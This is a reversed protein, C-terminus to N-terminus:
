TTLAPDPRALAFVVDGVWGVPVEPDALEAAAGLIRGSPRAAGLRHSIYSLHLSRPVREWDILRYGAKALMAALTQPTFYWLHSRMLWPWEAGRARAHVSALNVTTLAVLGGDALHTRVTRLTGIPDVLHELVDFMAVVDYREEHPIDELTGERLDV